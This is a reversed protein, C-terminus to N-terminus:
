AFRQVFTLATDAVDRWGEDITLLHGRGKVETYETVGANKSEKKLWLGHVFVVPAATTANARAVQEAEYETVTSPGSATTSM